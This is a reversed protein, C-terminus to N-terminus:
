FRLFAGISGAEKLKEAAVGRILEIKGGDRTIREIAGEILDEVQRVEGGCYTCSEVGDGHLMGCNSCQGGRPSLGDSYVLRWIRGEQLCILTSELGTVGQEKKAAATILEDILKIESAREVEQDIQLTAELVQRENADVPLRISAVVRSRLRKPLLQHLQSTAEVLGALVLRDFAYFDARRTMLEAVQKLHWHAHEDAKRQFQMQSLARDTGTTKPHRVEAQAFTEVHEEIEGLHITFLRAQSRDTLIVGYREFEDLIEVLPRVYATENWRADNRLPANLDRQWFLGASEDCFIILSRGQPEYSSVYRMVHDADAAFEWYEEKDRLDQEISRLMNKLTAQFQRNLNKAQSQDVDLYVSLIPSGPQAEREILQDLDKSSIMTRIGPLSHLYAGIFDFCKENEM